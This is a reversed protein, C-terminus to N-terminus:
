PNQQKEAMEAKHHNGNGGNLLGTLTDPAIRSTMDLALPTVAVLGRRMVAADSDEDLVARRNVTYGLRGVDGLNRRLPPLPIFYQARELRTMQWPTEPTASAPIDIKLVDVDRPREIELWRRAFLRAFHVAASFDVSTDDTNNHHLALDVELSIALAPVGFGAAELAAGVTGSGTV